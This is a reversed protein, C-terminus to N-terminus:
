RGGLIESLSSPGAYTSASRGQSARAGALSTPLRPAPVPNAPPQQAAREQERREIEAAIYAEPDSHKQMVGGWRKQAMLHKGFQYAAIAPAPHSRLLKAVELKQTDGRGAYAHVEAEAAEYDAYQRAQAESLMLRTKLLEEDFQQRMTGVFAKPDQFMMDELPVPPQAPPQQVHQVPQPMQQAAVKARYEAFEREIAQRKEREARAAAQLGIEASKEAAPPAAKQAYRGADDRPQEPTEVGTEAAPEAQAEPEPQRDPETQMPEPERAALIDSLASPEFAPANGQEQEM